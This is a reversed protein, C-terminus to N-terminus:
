ETWRIVTAVVNLKDDSDIFDDVGTVSVSKQNSTLIIADGGAACARKKMKPLVDALSDKWHSGEGEIIGLEEYARDPNRSSYVEIPCDEARAEYTQGTAIFRASTCGGLAGTALLTLTALGLARRATSLIPTM